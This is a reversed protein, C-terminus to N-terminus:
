APAIPANDGIRYGYEILRWFLEQSNFRYPYDSRYGGGDRSESTYGLKELSEIVWDEADCYIRCECGWKNDQIQYHPGAFPAVGTAVTYRNQFDQRSQENVEVELLLTRFQGLVKLKM